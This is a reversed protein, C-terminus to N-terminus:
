RLVTRRRPSGQGASLDGEHLLYGRLLGSRYVEEHDGCQGLIHLAKKNIDCIATVAANPIGAYQKMHVNGICGCGVLAIKVM